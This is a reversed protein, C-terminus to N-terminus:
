HAIPWSITSLQSKELSREPNGAPLAVQTNTDHRKRNRSGRTVVDVGDDQILQLVRARPKSWGVAGNTARIMARSATALADLVRQEDVVTQARGGVARTSDYFTGIPNGRGTLAAFREPHRALIKRCYSPRRDDCGGSAHVLSLLPQHPQLRLGPTTRPPVGHWTNGHWILLSGAPAEAPYWLCGRERSGDTASM